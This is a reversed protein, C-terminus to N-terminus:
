RQIGPRLIASVVCPILFFLAAIFCFGAGVAVDVEGGFVCCVGEGGLRGLPRGGL